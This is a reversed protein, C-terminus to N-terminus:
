LSSAAPWMRPLITSSGHDPRETVGLIPEQPAQDTYRRVEAKSFPREWAFTKGRVSWTRNGHQEGETVEPLAAISAADEINAM